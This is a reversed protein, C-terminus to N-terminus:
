RSSGPRSTGSASRSGTSATSPTPGTFDRTGSRGSTAASCSTLVKAENPNVTFLGSFFLIVLGEGILCPIVLPLAEHTAGWALGAALLLGLAILTVLSVGGPMTALLKERVM